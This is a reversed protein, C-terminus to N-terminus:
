RTFQSLKGSKSFKRHFIEIYVTEGKKEVSRVIEPSVESSLMIADWSSCLVPVVGIKLSESRKLRMREEGCGRKTKERKRMDSSPLLNV